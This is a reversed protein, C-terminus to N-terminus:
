FSIIEAASTIEFNNWRCQVHQFINMLQLLSRFYNQFLKLCMEVHRFLIMESPCYMSLPQFLTSIIENWMYGRCLLTFLHTIISIKEAHNSIFSLIGSTSVQCTPATRSSSSAWTYKIRFFLYYVPLVWYLLRCLGVRATHYIGVQWVAFATVALGCRKSQTNTCDGKATTSHLMYQCLQTCLTFMDAWPLAESFVM